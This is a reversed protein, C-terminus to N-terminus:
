TASEYDLNGTVTVTVDKSPLDTAQEPQKYTVKVKILYIIILWM